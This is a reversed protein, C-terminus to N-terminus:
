HCAFGAAHRADHAGNHLEDTPAFGAAYLLILGLAAACLPAVLRSGALPASRDPLATPADIPSTPV